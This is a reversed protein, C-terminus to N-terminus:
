TEHVDTHIESSESGDLRGEALAVEFRLHVLCKLVAEPDMRCLTCSLECDILKFSNTYGYLCVLLLARRLM